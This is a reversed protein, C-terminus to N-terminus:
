ERNKYFSDLKDLKRKLLERRDDREPEREVRKAAWVADHFALFGPHLERVKEFSEGLERHKRYEELFVERQQSNMQGHEFLIMIDHGPYGLTGYEWDVM